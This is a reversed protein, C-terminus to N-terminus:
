PISFLNVVRFLLAEDVSMRGEVGNMSAKFYRACHFYFFPRRRFSFVAKKMRSLVRERSLRCHFPRSCASM